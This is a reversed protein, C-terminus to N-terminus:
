TKDRPPLAKNLKAEHPAFPARLNELLEMRDRGVEDLRGAVAGVLAEAM